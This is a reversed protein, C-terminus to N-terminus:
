RSLPVRCMPCTVEISKSNCKGFWQDICPECFQHGCGMVVAEDPCEEMCVPCERDREEEDITHPRAEEHAKEEGESSLPGQDARMDMAAAAGGVPREKGKQKGGGKMKQKQKQKQKKKNGKQAQQKSGQEHRPAPKKPQQQEAARRNAMLARTEELLLSREAEEGGVNKLM